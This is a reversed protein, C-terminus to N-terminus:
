RAIAVSSPKSPVHRPGLRHWSPLLGFPSGAKDRFLRCRRSASTRRLFVHIRPGPRIRRHAPYACEFPWMHHEHGCQDKAERDCRIAANSLKTLSEGPGQLRAIIEARVASRRVKGADDRLPSDVFEVTQPVKYGAVRERLFETVTAEDLAAAEPSRAAQVLAYPWRVSIRTPAGRRCPLVVCGPVRARTRAPSSRGCRRRARPNVPATKEWTLM